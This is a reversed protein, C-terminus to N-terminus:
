LPSCVQRLREALLDLRKTGTPLLFAQVAAQGASAGKWGLAKDGPDAMDLQDIDDVLGAGRPKACPQDAGPDDIVLAVVIGALEQVLHDRCVFPVGDQRRIPITHVPAFRDITNEVIAPGRCYGRLKLPHDQRQGAITIAHVLKQDGNIANLLLRLRGRGTVDWDVDWDVDLPPLVELLTGTVLIGTADRIVLNYFSM